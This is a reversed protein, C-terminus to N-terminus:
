PSTTTTCHELRDLVDPDITVSPGQTSGAFRVGALVVLVVLAVLFWQVYPHPHERTM